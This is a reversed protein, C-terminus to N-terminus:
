VHVPTRVRGVNGFVRLYREIESQMGTAKEPNDSLKVAPQGDVSSVKCVMSIPDLDFSGDPACGVFDNTLNTGWGFRSGRRPRHLPSLDGRDFRRGHADSFVLLKDNPNRGKQKWWNIIEEGAPDAARQRPPLRDLRRGM